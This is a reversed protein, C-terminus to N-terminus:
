NQRTWLRKFSHLIDLLIFSGILLGMIKLDRSIPLYTISVLLILFGSFILVFVLCQPNRKLEEKKKRFFRAVRPIVIIEKKEEAM